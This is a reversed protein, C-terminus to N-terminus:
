IKGLLAMNRLETKLIKGGANRPLTELYSYTKPLKFKALKEKCFGKLEEDSITQNDNTVLVASVAEGWYDDEIGFVACEDRPKKNHFFFKM